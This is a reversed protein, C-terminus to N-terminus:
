DGSRALRRELQEAMRDWTEAVINMTHRAELSGFSEGEARAEEAKLRWWCVQQMTERGERRGESGAFGLLWQNEPQLLADPEPPGARWGFRAQFANADAEKNFQVCVAVIGGYRTSIFSSPERRHEDLWNRMEALEASFDAVPVRIMTSYM